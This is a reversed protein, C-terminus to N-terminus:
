AIRRDRAILASTHVPCTERELTITVLTPMHDRILYSGSPFLGYHFAVLCGNIPPVCLGLRVKTYVEVFVKGSPESSYM